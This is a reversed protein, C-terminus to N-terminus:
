LFDTFCYIEGPHLQSLFPPREDTKDLKRILERLVVAACLALGSDGCEKGSRVAEMIKRLLHSARRGCVVQLSSLINEAIRLIQEFKQKDSILITLDDVSFSTAHQSQDFKTIFSSM